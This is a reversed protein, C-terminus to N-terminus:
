EPGAESAAASNFLELQRLNSYFATYFFLHPRHVRSIQLRVRARVQQSAGASPAMRLLASALRSVRKRSSLLIMANSEVLGGAVARLGRLGGECRGPNDLM